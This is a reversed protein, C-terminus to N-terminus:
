SGALLTWCFLVCVAHGESRRKCIRSLSRTTTWQAGSCDYLDTSSCSTHDEAAQLDLNHAIYRVTLDVRACSMGCELLEVLEEVEHCAPGITAIVKTGAIHPAPGAPKLISAVDDSELFHLKAIMARCNAVRFCLRRCSLSVLLHM